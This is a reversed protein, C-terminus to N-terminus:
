GSGSLAGAGTLFDLHRRLMREDAPPFGVGAGAAAAWTRSCDFRPHPRPREPLSFALPAFPGAPDALMRERWRHYPVVETPHGASTLAAALAARTLGGDGHYHHDRCLHDPAQSLAVIAAAVTDVPVMDLVETTDPVAGAAVCGTLWRSFASRPDAAGTATDGVIAAIRHISVPLGHGRAASAMADAVWKSLDYGSTLGSPDTPADAETVVRGDYADGLFVGLTSILHLPAGSDGALRLIAATADVHAPKLAHYPAAFHPVAANHYIADVTTLTDHDETSLGLGPASLDGPVPIVRDTVPLRDISGPRVLCHIRADTRALLQDLLHRGLFGTAGTLLIRRPTGASPVGPPHVTRLRIEPSPVADARLRDVTPLDAPAGDDVAAAFAAVTPAAFLTRMPVTVGLRDRVAALLHAAILSHGGIAFFDATRDVDSRDLVTAWIAAVARETATRPPDAPVTHDNPGTPPEPLATSDVKGTSTTPLADLVVVTDPVLHAPLRDACFARLGPVDPVSLQPDPTTPDPANRTPATPTPVTPTPAARTPVTRTPAAQTPVTRTPAAQTLATRTPAAQTLATRTATRTPAGVYGILRDGRAVVVAEAVAPHAALVAAVEGPEVRNGRIKVQDDARGVFELTGRPNLRALDGTRYMRAGPRDGYPDAIFVAATAAPNGRYGRAPARGGIYVEGVVGVPVRRLARDLLHVRVHRLPRGIPLRTPHERGDVTRHSTACVTAETPGYHNHLPIGHKAWARVTAAPVIDGGVMMIELPLREGALDAVWRQWLPSAADVASLRHEVCLGLLDPGTLSGPDPHIVLTAGAALVPFIDGFAADFHPPPVMLLRHAATLGHETIFATTLNLLTDHQVEVGKPEGTSGSTHVVYALQSPHIPTPEHHGAAPLGDRTLVTRAGSAIILAQQRSSPQAPDIPVFCGGAKLVGLIAIIADAGAPITIAVPDESRIGAERLHRAIASSRRDLDRYTLPTAALDLVATADPTRATRAAILDVVTTAAPRTTAAPCTSPTDLGGPSAPCTSPVDPGGPSAPDSRTDLATHVASDAPSLLDLHSLPLGPHRAVADMVALVQDAIRTITDAEYRDTRYDILARWEGERERIHLTLDFRSTARDISLPTATLGTFTVPATERNLVLMTRFLPHGERLTPVTALIDAPSIDAHDMADAVVGAADALLDRPTARHDTRLRLPLTTVFMGIVDDQGAPRTSVPVGVVLDDGGDRTSSVIAFVALLGAFTTAREGRCWAAFRRALGAPVTFRHTAGPAAGTRRPHAPGPGSEPHPGSEPRPSGGPTSTPATGYPHDPSPGSAPPADRLTEAWFETTRRRPGLAAPMPNPLGPADPKTGLAPVPLGSAGAKTGLAPVPLGSAGAKTGLAPAPAGQVDTAGPLPSSVPDVAALTTLLISMSTDDCIIHHATITLLHTTPATRILHARVLPRRTLDFPHDADRAALREAEPWPDAHASLDTTRWARAPLEDTCSAASLRPTDDHVVIASRLAPHTALTHTFRARLDAEDLAGELRLAAHVVYAGDDQGAQHIIWLGHQPGSLRGPPAPVAGPAGSNGSIEPADSNGQTADIAAALATVTPNAFLTRITVEVGVSARIRAVAKVAALSHGGSLFFDDDRNVPRALLGAFIEAITTEPGPHPDAAATEEVPPPLARVNLKGSSTLPFADVSVMASPVLYAPLVRSLRERVRPWRPRGAAPIVYAVLRDGDGAVRADAVEPDARLAAEVEAPEVRHGRVKLQADVRGVFEVVGGPRRRALDGTAYMRAGPAPSFPDAVFRTASRGPAGLYGRALPFGGVYVEGVVDDDVPRLGANLLYVAVGDLPDGIGFPRGHRVREATSWITTETPGYANWLEAGGLSGALEPTLVEGISVRVRVCEPVGGASELVAWVSPTVQVVTVAEAMLRRTLAPGDVVIEPPVAVVRAGVTLPGVLEWLSIDFAPSIMAAVADGAGLGVLATSRALMGAVARHPVGVAKPRGTSGSTHLVYALSEPTIGPDVREFEEPLDPIGTLVVRAAETVARRRPEPWLPEVPVYVAGARWIGLIAVVLDTGRPLDVAVWIEPGAGKARLVSALAASRRELGAYSLEGVALGDAGFRILELVTSPVPAGGPGAVSAAVVSPKATLASLRRDPDACARDLLALLRGAVGDVTAGDFLDTDHETVVAMEAGGSEVMVTLDVDATGTDPLMRDARVGPLVVEPPDQMVLHAQCLPAHSPDRSAGAAEVIRDFPVAAGGLGAAVARRARAVLERFTPDGGIGVRLPVPNVFMGVVDAFEPGPRGSVLTAVVVDDQGATTGLTAAYAAQLVVFRTARTARALADVRATLGEPVAHRRLEGRFARMRPRPRDTPLTLLDPVGDLDSVRRSPDHDVIDPPAGPDPLPRAPDAYLASIEGCLVSLSRGDVVAHHTNIVLVHDTPTIRGLRIRFLPGTRLDFPERAARAAFAAADAAPVTRVVLDAAGAPGVRGVPEGDIEDFTTRLVPHRAVVLDAARRLADVSVPGALRFVAPNNHLPAGDAFAELFWLRRAGPPLPATM